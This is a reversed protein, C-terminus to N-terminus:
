RRAPWRWRLLSPPPRGHAGGQESCSDQLEADGRGARDVLCAGRFLPGSLRLRHSAARELVAVSCNRVARLSFRAAGLGCISGHGRRDTVARGQRGCAHRASGSLCRPACQDRPIGPGIWRRSRGTFQALKFTWAVPQDFVTPLPTAYWETTHTVVAALAVTRNDSALLTGFHALSYAIWPSMGLLLGAVFLGAARWAKAAIGCAAIMAIAFPLADFRNLFALGCLVGLALCRAAGLPGALVFVYLIVSLLLLQMPMTQGALLEVQFWWSAVVIGAVAFGVAPVGTLERAVLESVGMFLALCLFAALYGSNPGTQLLKDTIALAVPWLPPFDASYGGINLTQYTAVYNSRYFDGFVTQALEYLRWGDTWMPHDNRYFLFLFAAFGIFYTPALALTWRALGGAKPSRM